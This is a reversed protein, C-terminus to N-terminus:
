SYTTSLTLRKLIDIKIPLIPPRLKTQKERLNRIYTERPPNKRETLREIIKRLEYTIDNDIPLRITNGDRIHIECGKFMLSKRYSIRRIHDIPISLLTQTKKNFVIIKRATIMITLNGCDKVRLVIDEQELRRLINLQTLFNTTKRLKHIRDKISKVRAYLRRLNIHLDVSAKQTTEITTTHIYSSIPSYESIKRNVLLRFINQLLMGTKAYLRLIIKDLRRHIFIGQCRLRLLENFITDLEAILNEVENLFNVMATINRM